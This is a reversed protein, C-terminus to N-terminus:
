TANPPAAGNSDSRINGQSDSAIATPTFGDKLYTSTVLNAPLGTRVMVAALLLSRLLNM